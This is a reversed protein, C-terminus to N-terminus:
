DELDVLCQLIELRLRDAAQCGERTGLYPDEGIVEAVGDTLIAEARAVAEPARNAAKAAAVADTLMQLYEYDAIGQRWADWRKSGIMGQEGGYVMAYSVGSTYDSLTTARSDTYVWM